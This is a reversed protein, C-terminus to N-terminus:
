ARSRINSAREVVGNAAPPNSAAGIDGRDGAGREGAGRDGCDGRSVLWLPFFWSVSFVKCFGERKGGRFIIYYM